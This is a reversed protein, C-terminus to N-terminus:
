LLEVAVVTATAQPSSPM